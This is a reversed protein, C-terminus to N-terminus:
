LDTKLKKATPEDESADVAYKNEDAAAEDYGEDCAVDEDERGGGDDGDAEEHGGNDQGPGPVSQRAAQGVGGEESAAIMSLKDTPVRMIERLAM